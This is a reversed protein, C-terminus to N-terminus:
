NNPAGIAFRFPIQPPLCMGALIKGAESAELVRRSCALMIFTGSLGFLL